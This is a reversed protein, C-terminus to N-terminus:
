ASRRSIVSGAGTPAWTRSLRRARYLGGLWHATAAPPLVASSLIMTAIEDASRPGPRIRTFAFEATGLLWLGLGAGMIAPRRALAGAVALAAAATIAVHRPRRGPPVGARERWRRGHIAAMLADDANGAQLRVSIWRSAPRVPHWVRRGGAVITYGRRTVRLGLDADERYARPFREDFGGVEELVSRRYAMDATAWRAHELGRVNREWDTPARGEPLPVKLRGQSAAVGAPLHTLDARLEDCWSPMPVVDDDLFAVWEAGAARWGANRAAAPGRGGSRVVALRSGLIDTGAPSGTCPEMRDDVIIVHGISPLGQDASLAELLRGLCPRGVTPVVIDISPSM